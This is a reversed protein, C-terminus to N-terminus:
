GELGYATHLSRIALEMYEEAILVSIKIESTSIVLININKEALTQFMKQALGAHSKLGVGVVSVKAVNPDTIMKKYKLEAQAKKLCDEARALDTKAVTFTIDTTGDASVNQVIMDVNIEADALPGFVSAAIGPRDAVGALTIRADTKTYAIGTILRREMVEEEDVLLTGPADTFSSLVQVRVKYKMAMEVSRTQLVKAGLSAMELMEEYAIKNLKRAKTVIRPDTTYVGEVDTYIDCRDAKLAAALAVGSTDSGGRGLTTVRGEATVGQFGPIVPVEGRALSEEIIHADIEEIRAKGHTEDTKIKVQWSLFSRSKIGMEQLALALLGVTVQEGSAVVTDYEALAEPTKLSSLERAHGVLEDTVGSMASLVVAVQNGKDLESKVRMAANRIREPGAVSTGGFKQVILAM